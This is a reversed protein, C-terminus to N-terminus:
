GEKFYKKITDRYEGNEYHSYISPLIKLSPKGNKVGEILLINAQKEEKPYIFQIKKPEINNKRMMEIIDIMREPRHVMALVGGNKLLKKSIKCIQEINLMIEHRAITKYDSANLQIELMSHVVQVNEDNVKFYPPNSTIVDFIDSEMNKYIQNIDGQIIKIQNDLNNLKISRIAMSAVEPQYEVGVIKANTKTSLILPIPGNGCGIDLIQKINKNLTVFNPLLISDLSFSFMDSNQIIKMNKYELLDNITEM